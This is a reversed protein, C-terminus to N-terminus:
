QTDQASVFRIQISTTAPCPEPLSYDYGMANLNIVERITITLGKQNKEQTEQHDRCNKQKSSTVGKM